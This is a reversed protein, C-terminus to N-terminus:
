AAMEVQRRGRKALEHVYLAEMASVMRPFSYRNQVSSRAARGLRTGLAPDEMLECVRRALTAADGPPVLCGTRGDAILEPVGGVASAVVPLGSAMAELVSNPLSETRSPLVAIDARALLAPVDERQGLLSFAGAIGHHLLRARISPLEPGAGVLDFHANPFRRLIDVAADVLVDHGKEPRLNSVVIVRRRRPCPPSPRFAEVDLGNPIIVVKEPSVGEARLSGAMAASNTVIAHACAYAARQVALQASSRDTNLGRRSGIRVPVRAFAAAPLAFINTYFDVAQVVDIRHHTLWRAFAWAQRCTGPRLFGNIPFESIAGAAERACAMWEGRAHLCAVRVTWRSRDLRRVLELMQRETGGPDFSTMVVALNLSPPVPV